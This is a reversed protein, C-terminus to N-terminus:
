WEKWEGAKRTFKWFLFKYDKRDFLINIPLGELERMQDLKIRQRDDLLNLRLFFDNKVNMVKCHFGKKSASERFLIRQKPYLKELYSMRQAITEMDCDDWDFTIM